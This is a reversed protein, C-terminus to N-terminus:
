SLFLDTNHDTCLLRNLDSSEQLKLLTPDNRCMNLTDNDTAYDIFKTAWQNNRYKTNKSRNNEKVKANMQQLNLRRDNNNNAM